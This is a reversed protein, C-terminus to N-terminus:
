MWELGALMDAEDVTVAHQNIEIRENGGVGAEGDRVGGANVVGALDKASSGIGASRRVGDHQSRFLRQILTECDNM